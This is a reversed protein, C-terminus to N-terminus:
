HATHYLRVGPALRSSSREWWDLLTSTSLSFMTTMHRSVNLASRSPVSRPNQWMQWVNQWLSNVDSLDALPIM